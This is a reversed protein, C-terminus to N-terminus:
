PCQYDFDEMCGASCEVIAVFRRTNESRELYLVLLVVIDMDQMNPHFIEEVVTADSAVHGRRVLDRLRGLLFNSTRSTIKGAFEEM